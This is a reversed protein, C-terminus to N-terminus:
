EDEGGFARRARETRNRDIASEENSFLSPCNLEALEACVVDLDIRFCAISPEFMVYLYCM